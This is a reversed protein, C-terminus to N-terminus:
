LGGLKSLDTLRNYVCDIVFQTKNGEIRDMMEIPLRLSYMKRATLTVPRGQGPKNRKISVINLNPLNLINTM